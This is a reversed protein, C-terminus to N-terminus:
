LRANKPMARIAQRVGLDGLVDEAASSPDAFSLLPMFLMSLRGGGLISDFPVTRHYQACCLYNLLRLMGFGLSSECTRHFPGNGDAYYRPGWLDAGCGKSYGACMAHQVDELFRDSRCPQYSARHVVSIYICTM